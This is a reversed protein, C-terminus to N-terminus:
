SSEPLTGVSVRTAAIESETGNKFRLVQTNGVFELPTRKFCEETLPESKPCLRYQYGGGHNASIAWSVEVITGAEWMTKQSAPPLDSGRDGAKFGPPVVGGAGINSKNSGGAM